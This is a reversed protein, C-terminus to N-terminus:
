YVLGLSSQGLRHAHVVCGYIAPASRGYQVYEFLGRLHDVKPSGSQLLSVGAALDPRSSGSAWQLCGVVSRYETVKKPTLHPDTRGRATINRHETDEMFTQQPLKVHAPM